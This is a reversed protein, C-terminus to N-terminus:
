IWLVNQLQCESVHEKNNIYIVALSTFGIIANMPTRIDHSMNFLFERKALNAATEQKVALELEANKQELSRKYDREREEQKISFNKESSWRLSQILALILVYAILAAGFIFITINYTQKSPIYAYLYYDRRHSYMGYYSNQINFSNVRVMLITATSDYDYGNLLDQISLYTKKAFAAKTHHYVIAM